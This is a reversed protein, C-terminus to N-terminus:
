DPRQDFGDLKSAIWVLVAGATVMLLIAILLRLM